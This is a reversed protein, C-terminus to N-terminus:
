PGCDGNYPMPFAPMRSCASTLIGFRISPSNAPRAATTGSANRTLPAASKRSTRRRTLRGSNSLAVRDAWRTRLRNRLCEPPCPREAAASQRCLRALSAAVHGCDSHGHAPGDQRDHAPNGRASFRGSAMQLRAIDGLRLATFFGIRIMSRWEADAVALITSLEDLTFPRRTPEGRGRVAKVAEAPDIILFGYETPGARFNQQILKLYGNVTGPALRKLASDRYGTM